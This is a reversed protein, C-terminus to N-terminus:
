LYNSLRSECSVIKLAVNSAVSSGLSLFQLQSFFKWQSNYQQGAPKSLGETVKKVEKLMCARISKWAAVLESGSFKFSFHEELEKIAALKQDKADKKPLKISTDWLVPKKEYFLILKRRKADDLRAEPITIEVLGEDEVLEAM